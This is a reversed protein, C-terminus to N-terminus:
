MEKGTFEVCWQRFINIDTIGKLWRLDVVNGTANHKIFEMDWLPCEIFGLKWDHKGPSFENWNATFYKIKGYCLRNMYFIIQILGWKKILFHKCIIGDEVVSLYFPGVSNYKIEDPQKWTMVVKDTPHIYLWTGYFTVLGGIIFVILMAWVPISIKKNM